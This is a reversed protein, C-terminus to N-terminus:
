LEDHRKRSAFVKTNYLDCGFQKIEFASLMETYVDLIMAQNAISGAQLNKRSCQRDVLSTRIDPTGRNDFFYAEGSGQQSKLMLQTKDSVALRSDLYYYHDDVLMKETVSKSPNRVEDEVSSMSVNRFSAGQWLYAFTLKGLENEINLLAASAANKKRVSIGPIFMSCDKRSIECTEVGAKIETFGTVDMSTAQKDSHSTFIVPLSLKEESSVFVNDPMLELQYKRSRGYAWYICIINNILKGDVRKRDLRVSHFHVNRRAISEGLATFGEKFSAHLGQWHEPMGSMLGAHYSKSESDFNLTMPNPCYFNGAYLNVSVAYFVLLLRIIKTLKM